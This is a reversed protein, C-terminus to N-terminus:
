ADPTNVGDEGIGIDSGEDNLADPGSHSSGSFDDEFQSTSSGDDTSDDTSLDFDDLVDFADASGNRHANYGLRSSPVDTKVVKFGWNALERERNQFISALLKRMQVVKGKITRVDTGAVGKGFLQDKEEVMTSLRAQAKKIKSYLLLFDKVADVWPTMLTAPLPSKDGLEEHRALIATIAMYHDHESSPSEINVYTAM